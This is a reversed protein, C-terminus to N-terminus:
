YTIQSEFTTFSSIIDKFGEPIKKMYEPNLEFGFAAIVLIRSDSLPAEYRYAMDYLYYETDYSTEIIQIKKQDMNVLKRDVYSVGEFVNNEALRDLRTYEEGIDVYFEEIGTSDSDKIFEMFFTNTNGTLEGDDNLIKVPRINDGFSFSYGMLRDTYTKNSYTWYPSEKDVKEPKGNIIINELEINEPLSSNEDKSRLYNVDPLQGWSPDIEMWRGIWVEAWAHGSYTDSLGLWGRAVRAPIGLARAFAVFLNASESCDGEGCKLTELASGVSVIYTSRISDSVWKALLLSQQLPDREDGVIEKAKYIIHKNDSEIMYAPTLALELEKKDGTEHGKIQTEPYVTLFVTNPDGPKTRLEQRHNKLISIDDAYKYQIKLQIGDTELLPECLFDFSIVNERVGKIELGREHLATAPDLAFLEIGQMRSYQRFFNKNFVDIDKNGDKETIVKITDPSKYFAADYTKFELSYIDFICYTFRDGNKAKDMMNNTYNYHTPFEKYYRHYYEDMLNAELLMSDGDADLYWASYRGNDNIIHVVLFVDDDMTFIGFILENYKTETDYTLVKTFLDHTFVIYKENEYKFEWFNSLLNLIIGEQDKTSVAHQNKLSYKDIAAKLVALPKEKLVWNEEIKQYDNVQSFLSSTLFVFSICLTLYSFHTNKM